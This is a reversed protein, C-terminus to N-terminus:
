NNQVFSFLTLNQNCSARTTVSYAESVATGNVTELQVNCTRVVPANFIFQEWGSPSYAPAGGVPARTDIGCNWVHVQYQGSPVPNRNLDLVEGAIGMWNCGANNAFNQLYQPSSADRTFPFPSRTNTPTPSPGPTETPTATNTPTPTLTPPPFTPTISPVATPRRTNTATPLGTPQPRVPTWTASLREPTPTETATPVVALLVSTPSPELDVEVERGGGFDFGLLDTVPTILDPAVIAVVLGAVVLLILVFILATLINLLSLCGRSGSERSETTM